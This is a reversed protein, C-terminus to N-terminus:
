QDGIAQQVMQSARTTQQSMESARELRRFVSGTLTLGVAFVLDM